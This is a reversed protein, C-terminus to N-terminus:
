DGTSAKTQAILVGFPEAARGAPINIRFKVDPATVSIDGRDWSLIRYFEAPPKSAAVRMLDFRRFTDRISNRKDAQFTAILAGDQADRLQVVGQGNNVVNIDRVLDPSTTPLDVAKVGFLTALTIAAFAFLGFVGVLKYMYTPAMEGERRGPRGAMGATAGAM